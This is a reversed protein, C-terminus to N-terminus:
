DHRASAEETGTRSTRGAAPLFLLCPSREWLVSHCRTTPTSLGCPSDSRGVQEARQRLM